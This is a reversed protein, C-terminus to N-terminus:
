ISAISTVAKECFVSSVPPSSFNEDMNKERFIRGGGHFSFCVLPSCNDDGNAIIRERFDWRDFCTSVRAKFQCNEIYNRRGKRWEKNRENMQFLFLFLFVESRIRAFERARKFGLRKNTERPAIVRYYNGGGGGGHVVCERSFKKGRIPSM